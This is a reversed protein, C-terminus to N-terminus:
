EEILDAPPVLNLLSRFLADTDESKGVSICLHDPRDPLYRVFVGRRELALKLRWADGRTVKCLLAPGQSPYPQVFNFKRLRRYLRGRELRLRKLNHMVEALGDLSAAVAITAALSLNHGPRLKLLQRVMERPFIGYGVALGSLGAWAGFSRLVVFNSFEATLPALSHAAYEHWTEDVVLLVGTHLIRAASAPDLTAGFEGPSAIIVMRTRPGIGALVGDLDVALRRTHPVSIVEVGTLATLYVPPEGPPCVVLSDGAACVATILLGLLEDGSGVLIRERSYGSYRELLTRLERQLPDPQRHYSDFAALADPVRPSCGYPNENADLRVAQAAAFGYRSAALEVPAPSAFDDLAALESRVIQNDTTTDVAVKRLSGERRSPSSAPGRYAVRGM